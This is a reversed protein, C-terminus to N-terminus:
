TAALKEALREVRERRETGALEPRQAWPLAEAILMRARAAKGTALLAEALSCRIDISIPHRAGLAAESQALTPDLLTVARDAEGLATLTQGLRYNAEPARAHDPYRALFDSFGSEAGAYDGELLLKNAAAFAAVPTQGAPGPAPIPPPSTSTSPRTTRLWVNGFGACGHRNTM